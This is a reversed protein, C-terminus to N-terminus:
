FGSNFDSGVTVSFHTSDWSVVGTCCMQMVQMASSIVVYSHMDHVTICSGWRAVGSSMARVAVFRLVGSAVRSM